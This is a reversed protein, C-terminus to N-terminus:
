KGRLKALLAKVHEPIVGRTAAPIAAPRHALSSQTFSTPLEDEFRWGNLWTAAHPLYDLDKDAWVRRWDVIAVIAQVRQAPALKLWAREADKRAVRRPYLAWFNAFTCEDETAVQDGANVDVLSISM